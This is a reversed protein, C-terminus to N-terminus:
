FFSSRFPVWTAEFAELNDPTIVLTNGNEFKFSVSNGSAVWGRISNLGWMDEAHASCMVGEFEIGVTKAESVVLDAEYKLQDASKIPAEYPAIEVGETFVQAVLENRGDTENNVVTTPIWGFDPHNIECDVSINDQSAYKLNRIDM